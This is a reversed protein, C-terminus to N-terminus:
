DAIPEKAAFKLRLCFIFLIKNNAITADRAIKDAQLLSSSLKLGGEIVGGEFWVTCDPESISKDKVKL